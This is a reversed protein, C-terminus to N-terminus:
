GWLSVLEYPNIKKASDMCVGLAMISSIAMDIRGTSRRKSPKVLETDSVMLQVNAVCSALAPSGDHMLKGQLILREFEKTPQSMSSTGQGFEFMPLGTQELAQVLYTAGWRDFVIKTPKYKEALSEIEKQLWHYDIVAGSCTKLWGLQKWTGYNAHDRVEATRLAEDPMYGMSKIYFQDDGCQWCLSVASLDTTKSLDVAMIPHGILQPPNDVACRNFDEARIWVQEGADVFQNLHEQRFVRELYPLEKAKRCEERLKELDQYDGLAPCCKKWTTESDWPEDPEAYFLVPLHTPDYSQDAHVRKSYQLEDWVLSERTDGATSLAIRLPESWSSQSNCLVNWLDRTKQTLLEDQIYVSCNYGRGSSSDSSLAEVFSSNIRYVIRKTSPVIDVLSSLWSDAEIMQRMIDFIHSASKRNTSAILIQQGPPGCFLCYTALAAALSSKGARRSLYLFASKYQRRDDDRVTGFLQRVFKEQWPRLTFPRDKWEGTCTLNNIFKVAHKAKNRDFM